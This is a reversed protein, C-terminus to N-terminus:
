KFALIMHPGLIVERRSVVSAYLAMFQRQAHKFAVFLFFIFIVIRKKPPSPSKNLFGYNKLYKFLLDKSYPFLGDLFTSSGTRTITLFHKWRMEEVM